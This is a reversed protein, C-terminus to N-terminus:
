FNAEQRLNVAFHRLHTFMLCRSSLNSPTLSTSSRLRNTLRLHLIHPICGSKISYHERTFVDTNM